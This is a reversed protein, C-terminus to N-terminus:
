PLNVIIAITGKKEEEREGKRTAAFVGGAVGVSVIGWFWWRKYFPKGPKAIVEIKKESISIPQIEVPRGVLKSWMAEATQDMLGFIEKGPVGQVQEAAIIESTEIDILRSNIRIMDGIQLFSGVLVANAGVQKGLQVATQEDVIDSMQLKMEDLASQLRSREVIHVEGRKGLYTIISEPIGKVLYDLAKQFPEGLTVSFRRKGMM